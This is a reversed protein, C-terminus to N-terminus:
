QVKEDYGRELLNHTIKVIEHQAGEIRSSINELGLDKVLDCARELSAVAGYLNSRVENKLHARTQKQGIARYLEVGNKM